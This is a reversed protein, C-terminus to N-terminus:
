ASRGHKARIRERMLAKRNSSRQGAPTDDSRYKGFMELGEEFPTLEQKCLYEALAERVVWSTSVDRSTAYQKLRRQLKEDMRISTTM